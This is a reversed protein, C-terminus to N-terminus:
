NFLSEGPKAERGGTLSRAIGSERVKEEGAELVRHSGVEFVCDDVGLSGYVLHAGAGVADVM